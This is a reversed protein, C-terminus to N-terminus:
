NEIAEEVLEVIEQHNKQKAMELATMYIISFSFTIFLRFHFNYLYDFIFIRYIISFSFKIFLRFHFDLLYDFIFIGYIISFSFEM